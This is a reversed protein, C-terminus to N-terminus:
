KKELFGFALQKNRLSYLQSQIYHTLSLDYEKQAESQLKRSEPHKGKKALEQARAMRDDASKEYREGQQFSDDALKKHRAEQEVQAATLHHEELAAGQQQQLTTFLARAEKAQAMAKEVADEALAAEAADILAVAKQFLVAADTSLADKQGWVPLAASTMVGIGIILICLTRFIV